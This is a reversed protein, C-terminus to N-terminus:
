KKKKHSTYRQRILDPDIKTFIHPLNYHLLEATKQYARNASYRVRELEDIMNAIPENARKGLARKNKEMRKRKVKVLEGSPTNSGFLHLNILDDKDKLCDVLMTRAYLELYEDIVLRLQKQMERLTNNIDPKSHYELISDPIPSLSSVYRVKGEIEKEKRNFKRRVEEAKDVLENYDTCMEFETTNGRLFDIAWWRNIDRQIVTVGKKGKKVEPMHRGSIKNIEGAILPLNAGREGAEIMIRHWKIKNQNNPNHTETYSLEHKLWDLAHLTQKSPRAKKSTTKRRYSRFSFHQCDCCASNGPGSYCDDSEILRKLDGCYIKM